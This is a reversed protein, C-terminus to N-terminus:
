GNAYVVNSLTLDNTTVTGTYAEAEVTLRNLNDNAAQVAVNKICLRRAYAGIRSGPTVSGTWCAHQFTQATGKGPLVPSTTQADADETWRWTVRDPIRRAGIIQQYPSAGGPGRLPVIGLVHEISFQRFIRKAGGTRTSTGLDNMFLSGAAIPAPNYQNSTVTSPFTATSYRWWSVGWTVEIQPREGPNLGTFVISMPYCGHCEYCLNATLLLLRIGTISVTTPAESPYIMVAPALVDGNSPAGDMNALLTLNTTSHTSIPYLQGNGRGDASLGGAGIWCVGGASFTGSATTTPITATGGTLTTSASASLAVNGVVLGLITEIADISPSGVTTTGHGAWDFRVKVTGEQTMLVWQTGDNRYQVVREPAVKTHVLGSTDVAGVVPYRHTAFTTVDEGFASEAEYCIAGLAAPNSM